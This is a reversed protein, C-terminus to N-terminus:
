WKKPNSVVVSGINLKRLFDIRIVRSITLDLQMSYINDHNEM